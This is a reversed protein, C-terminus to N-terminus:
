RGMVKGIDNFLVFIMLLILLVAGIATIVIEKDAPIRKRTVAEFLVLLIRGGDLAPIPLLNMVGLNASLLVVFNVINLLVLSFGEGTEEAADEAEDIVDSMMNAIGVPGSLNDKNFNGTFLTKLTMFVSKVQLRLELLGYFLEESFSSAIRMDSAVGFMYSGTEEDYKMQVVTERSEGNRDYTVQVPKKPDTTMRFLSLERFNYIRDGNLYTITDGAMLGAEEAASDKAVEKITAPDIYSFHCVIVALIFALIFNFLPGAFLIALRQWATKKNFANPDDSEDLQGEMMCYGGIPLLRLSYKTDKKGFTAISPGMGISFENVKVKNMRAFLFHGFEHIFVIIGFVLIISIVKVM